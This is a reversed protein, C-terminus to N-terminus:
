MIKVSAWAIRRNQHHQMAIACHKLVQRDTSDDISGAFFKADDAKISWAETM